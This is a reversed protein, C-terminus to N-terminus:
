EAKATRGPRGAKRILKNVADSTGRQGEAHGDVISAVDPDFYVVARVRDKRPRGKPQSESM